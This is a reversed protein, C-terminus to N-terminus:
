PPAHHTGDFLRGIGKDVEVRIGHPLCLSSPQGTRLLSETAIWHSATMEKKSWGVRDWLIGLAHRALFPEVLLFSDRRLRIVEKREQLVCQELLRIALQDICVLAERAQEALGALHRIVQPNVNAELDPMVQHRLRNRTFTPDANSADDRWMVKAEALFALIESRCVNMLPRILKVGPELERSISMGALGRLGTGRLINHLVTEAQDDQHHATAIASFQHARAVRLLFDYRSRRCAEEVSEGPLLQSLVSIEESFFPLQREIAAAQVFELDMSSEAGRLGHNLHAVGLRLPGVDDGRSANLLAVGHLLAM